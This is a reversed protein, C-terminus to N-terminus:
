CSLIVQIMSIVTSPGDSGSEGLGPLVKLGAILRGILCIGLYMGYHLIGFLYDFELALMGILGGAAIMGVVGIVAGIDNNPFAYSMLPMLLWLAAYVTGCIGIRSWLDQGRFPPSEQNRLFSYAILSIPIAILVAGVAVLAFPIEKSDGYYNRLLLAVLLFLAIGGAIVVLHVRSLQTERRAIPKLISRGKSDTPGSHEPAHIVVQEDAAPIQIVAKCKPCPGEKGAFKDNVDFRTHCGSCTVRIAM